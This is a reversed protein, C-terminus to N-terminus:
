HKISINFSDLLYYYGSIVIILVTIFIVIELKFGHKHHLVREKHSVVDLLEDGLRISLFTGIGSLAIISWYPYPTTIIKKFLSTLFTKDYNDPAFILSFLNILIAFGWVFIESIFMRVGCILRLPFDLLFGADAIPTALVFFSWTLLAVMGGTAIDFEIALYVFYASFLLLLALFKSLVQHKTKHSFLHKIKEM